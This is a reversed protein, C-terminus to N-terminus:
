ATVLWFVRQPDVDVRNLQRTLKTEDELSVVVLADFPEGDLQCRSLSSSPRVAHGFFRREVREDDVVGVLTLGSDHLCVYGIEALEGAGWFVVRVASRNPAHQKALDAFSAQLRQRADSYFSISQRLYRHSLRAKEALGAPTILYAVRNRPVRRLRVLGKRVMQRMLLNTLGLAIGLERSLSRQSVAHTTELRSLIQRTHQDRADSISV